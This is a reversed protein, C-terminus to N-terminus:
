RQARSPSEGVWIARQAESLGNTLRDRHPKGFNVQTPSPPLCALVARVAVEPQQGPESKIEVNIVFGKHAALAGLVEDLTSIPCDGALRVRRLAALPLHAIRDDRGALRGLDADHFVVPEGTACLQVDLEIGDAGADRGAFFAELTNETHHASAGRRGLILPLQM